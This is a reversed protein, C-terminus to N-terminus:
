EQYTNLAQSIDALFAVKNCWTEGRLLDGLESGESKFSVTLEERLEYFRSLVRGRSLWRVEMHLLIQTRAAAMASRLASFLSSQLSRTKIFNVMQIEENLVKRVEPAISKSILDERRLFRHTFVTVPNKQKALAVFARLSRCLPLATRTPASAHNGNCITLVSIHTSLM